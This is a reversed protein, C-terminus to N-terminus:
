QSNVIVFVSDFDQPKALLDVSATNFVQNDQSEFEKIKGIVFGRPWIGDTGSAVILEGAEPTKDKAILDLIVNSGLGRILGSIKNTATIASIRSQTDFITEVKSVGYGADVIRGIIAEGESIVVMGNAIGDNTGKDILFSRNNQFDRGIVDALRTSIGKQSLNLKERFLSNETELRSLKALKNYLDLNESILRNNAEKINRINLAVSQWFFLWDGAKDFIVEFPKLTEGVLYKFSLVVRTQGFFVIALSLLLLIFFVTLNHKTM